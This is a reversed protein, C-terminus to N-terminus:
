GTSVNIEVPNQFPIQASPFAYAHVSCHVCSCQLPCICVAIFMCHIYARVWPNWLVVDAHLECGKDLRLSHEVSIVNNGTNLSIPRPVNKYICDTESTISVTDRAETGPSPEGDTLKVQLHLLSSTLSSHISPHFHEGFCSTHVKDLFECGQFGQVAVKTATAAFYTHLLAQFPVPSSGFSDVNKVTLDCSLSTSAFLFPLFSSTPATYQLKAAIDLLAGKVMQASLSRTTSLLTTHGCLLLLRRTKLAFHPLSVSITPTKRVRHCSHPPKGSVLGQLATSHCHDAVLNPFSGAVVYAAVRLAFLFASVAVPIGGRIPTDPKFASSKSMWLMEQGSARKWSVVHAGHCFVEVKAGSSSELVVKRFGTAEDVVLRVSGGSAGVKQRKASM